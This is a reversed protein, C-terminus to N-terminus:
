KNSFEKHFINLVDTKTGTFDRIKFTDSPCVSMLFYLSAESSILFKHTITSDPGKSERICFLTMNLESFVTKIPFIVGGKGRFVFRGREFNFYKFFFMTTKIVIM